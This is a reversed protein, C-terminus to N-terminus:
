AEVLKKRQASRPGAAKLQDQLKTLRVLRMLFLAQLEDYRGDRGHLRERGPNASQLKARAANQGFGYYGAPLNKTWGDPNCFMLTRYVTASRRNERADGPGRCASQRHYQPSK